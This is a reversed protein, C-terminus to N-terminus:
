TIEDRRGLVMARVMNLERQSRIFSSLTKELHNGALLSLYKLSYGHDAKVHIFQGSKVFGILYFGKRNMYESYDFAHPNTQLDFFNLSGEILLRDGFNLSDMPQDIFYLIAKEKTQRWKGAAKIRDVIVEYRATKSTSVARSDIKAVFHSADNFIKNEVAPKLRIENFHAVLIGVVIYLFINIWWHGIQKIRKTNRRFNWFFVAWFIVILLLLFYGISQQLGILDHLWIGAILALTVRLFPYRSWHM